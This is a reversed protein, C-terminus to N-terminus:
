IMGWTVIVWVPTMGQGGSAYGALCHYSGRGSWFSCTDGNMMGQHNFMM